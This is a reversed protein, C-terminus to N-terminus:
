SKPQRLLADGVGPPLAHPVAERQLGTQERSGASGHRLSAPKGALHRGTRPSEATGWQALRLMVPDPDIGTATAARPAAYWVATGPGCGIDVVWDGATLEAAGAVTRALPGRGATMSVATIIQWAREALEKMAM